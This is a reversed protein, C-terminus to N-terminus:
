LARALRVLVAAEESTFPKKASDDSTLALVGLRYANLTGERAQATRADEAADLIVCLARSWVRGDDGAYERTLACLSDFTVRVVVSARYESVGGDEDAVKVGVSRTGVDSTACSAGSATGFAGYGAGCDFAYTFGATTDAASPDSAGSASLMFPFGALATAPAALAATPAVNAVTVTARDTTAAQGDSVRV